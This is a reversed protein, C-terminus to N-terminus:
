LDTPANCLGLAVAWGPAPKSLDVGSVRVGKPRSLVTLPDAVQAEIGAREAIQGCLDTRTAEGGTFVLRDITRDPFLARHHHVCLQVEDAIAEMLDRVSAGAEAIPAKQSDLSTLNRPPAGYRRETGSDGGEYVPEDEMLLATDSLVEDQGGDVKHRQAASKAAAAKEKRNPNDIQATHAARRERAERFSCGYTRATSKDFQFGGVQLTRAFMPEKGHSIAIKTTGYGLDVLMTTQARDAERRHIHDLSRALAVHEVHVGVPELKASRIAKMHSLVSDRPIGICLVETRKKGSRNIEALEVHRLIFQSEDMGTFERLQDSILTKLPTGPILGIRLHQVFTVGASVSCIARKGRFDGQKLLDPLIQAQFMLREQPRNLYNVPTEAYAASVLTPSNGPIIQLMKLASVGFDVAIPPATNKLLGFSM